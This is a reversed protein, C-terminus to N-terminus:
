NAQPFCGCTAWTSLCIGTCFDTASGSANATMGGRNVTPTVLIDLDFMKEM